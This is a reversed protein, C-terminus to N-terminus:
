ISGLWRQSRCWLEHSSRIRLWQTFGPILSVVEHNRTPNMEAAGPRSRWFASLKALVYSKIKRKVAVGPVYPLVEALFLHSSEAAPRHWLWLLALDSSLRHSIGYSKHPLSSDKVWQALGPISGSDEHLSHQM